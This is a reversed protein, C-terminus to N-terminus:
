KILSKVAQNKFRPDVYLNLLSDVVLAADRVWHYYYDPHSKSPAAIVSGKLGDAPSTNKLLFYISRQFQNELENSNIPKYNPKALVASVMLVVLAFVKFRFM